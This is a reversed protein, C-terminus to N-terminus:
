LGPLFHKRLPQVCGQPNSLYQGTIVKMLTTAVYKAVKSLKETSKTNSQPLLQM